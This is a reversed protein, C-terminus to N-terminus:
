GLEAGDTATAREAAPIATLRTWAAAHDSNPSYRPIIMMAPVADMSGFACLAATAASLLIAAALLPSM